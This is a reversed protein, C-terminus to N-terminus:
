RGPDPTQPPANKAREFSSKLMDFEQVATKLETRNVSQVEVDVVANSEGRIVSVFLTAAYVGAVIIFLLAVILSVFWVLPITPHIHPLSIHPIHRKTDM